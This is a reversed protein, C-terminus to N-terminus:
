RAENGTPNFEERIVNQVKKDGLRNPLTLKDSKVVNSTHSMRAKAVNESAARQKSQKENSRHVAPMRFNM